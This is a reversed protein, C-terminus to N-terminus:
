IKLKGDPKGRFIRELIPVQEIIAHYRSKTPLVVINAEMGKAISNGVGVIKAPMVSIMDFVQELENRTGMQCAHAALLAVQLLNANGFPNFMDQVNDSAFAVTLGHNLLAKVPAVGRWVRFSDTRGQLYLNSSPLSVINLKAERISELVKELQVPQLLDLLCCHAVTVRGVMGSSITEQAVLPLTLEELKDSEDVHMDVPLSYKEALAFLHRIHQKPTPDRSPIGGVADAGMKLAEELMDMAGPADIGEQPFAVIQIDIKSSYEERLELLAEMSVLGVLGDIDVNTRIMVTGASIAKEIVQRARDKVNSRTFKEKFRRTLCIADDLTLSQAKSDWLIQAKSDWLLMSKDLHMHCDVFGPSVLNGKLDLVQDSRQAAINTGVESILEGDIKIDVEAGDSLLCNLLLLSV